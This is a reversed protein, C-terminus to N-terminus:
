RRWLVWLMRYQDIGSLGVLGTIWRVVSVPQSDNYHDCCHYDISQIDFAHALYGMSLDCFECIPGLNSWGGPFRVNFSENFPQYEKQHGNKVRKTNKNLPISRTADPNLDDMFSVSKKVEM